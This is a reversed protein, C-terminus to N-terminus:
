SFPNDVEGLIIFTKNNQFGPLINSCETYCFKTHVLIIM